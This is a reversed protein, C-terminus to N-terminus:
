ARGVGLRPPFVGSKLEPFYLYDRQYEIEGRATKLRATRDKMCTVHLASPAVTVGETKAKESVAQRAIAAAQGAIEAAQNEAATEMLVRAVLDGVSCSRAEIDDFKVGQNIASNRQLADVVMPKLRNWISEAQRAADFQVSSQTMTIGEETEGNRM